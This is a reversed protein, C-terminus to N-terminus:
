GLSPEPSKESEKYEKYKKSFYNLADKFKDKINNRMEKISKGRIIPVLSILNNLEHPEVFVIYTYRKKVAKFLAKYYKDKIATSVIVRNNLDDKVVVVELYSQFKYSIILNDMLIYSKGRIVLGNHLNYIHLLNNYSKLGNFYLQNIDYIKNKYNFLKKM